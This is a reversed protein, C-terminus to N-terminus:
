IINNIEVHCGLKCTLSDNKLVNDSLLSIVTESFHWRASSGPKIGCGFGLGTYSRVRAGSDHRSGNSWEVDVLKANLKHKM